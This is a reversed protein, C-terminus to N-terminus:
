LKAKLDQNGNGNGNGSVPVGKGGATAETNVTVNGSPSSTSTDGFFIVEVTLDDRGYFILRTRKLTFPIPNFVQITQFLSKTIDASRM